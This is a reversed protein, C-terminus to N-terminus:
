NLTLDKDKLKKLEFIGLFATSNNDTLVCMMPWGAKLRFHSLGWFHLWMFVWDLNKPLQQQCPIQKRAMSLPSHHPKPCVNKRQIIRTRKGYFPLEWDQCCMPIEQPNLCFHQHRLKVGLAYSKYSRILPMLTPIQWLKGSSSLTSNTNLVVEPSTPLITLFLKPTPCLDLIKPSHWDQRELRRLLNIRDTM